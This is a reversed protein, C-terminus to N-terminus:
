EMNRDAPADRVPHSNLAAHYYWAVLGFAVVALVLPYVKGTALALGGGALLAIGGSLVDADVLKQLTEKSGVAANRVECLPGAHQTYADHIQFIGAGVLATAAGIELRNM